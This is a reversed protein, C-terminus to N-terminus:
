VASHYQVSEGNEIILIDWRGFEVENGFEVAQHPHVALSLGVDQIDNMEETQGLTGGGAHVWLGDHVSLFEHGDLPFVFVLIARVLGNVTTQFDERKLGCKNAPETNM